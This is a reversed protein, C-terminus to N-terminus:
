LHLSEGGAKAPAKEESEEWASAASCNYRKERRRQSQSNISSAKECSRRSEEAWFFERFLGRRERSLPNERTSLAMSELIIKEKKKLGKMYKWASPMYISAQYNRRWGNRWMKKKKSLSLLRWGGTGGGCIAKGSYSIEGARNKSQKKMEKSIENETKMSRWAEWKRWIAM